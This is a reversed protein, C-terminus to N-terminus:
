CHVNLVLPRSNESATQFDRSVCCPERRVRKKAVVAAKVEQRLTAGGCFSLCQRGNAGVCAMDCRSFMIAAPADWGRTARAAGAGDRGRGNEGGAGWAVRNRSSRRGSHNGSRGRRVRKGIARCLLGGVVLADVTGHVAPEALYGVLHPGALGHAELHGLHEELALGIELVDHHKLRLGVALNEDEVADDLAGFAVLEGVLLHDRVKGQAGDVVRRLLDEDDAAAVAADEPLNDPMGGHLAEVDGLDVAHDDVDRLLEEGAHGAPEVVRADVDVHAVADLEDAVRLLTGVVGDDDIGGIGDSGRTHEELLREELLDVPREFGAADQARLTLADPEM